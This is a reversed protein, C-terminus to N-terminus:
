GIHAPTRDDSSIRGKSTRAVLPAANLHVLSFTGRQAMSDAVICRHFNVHDQEFCLLCAVGKSAATVAESLAHQAASTLM